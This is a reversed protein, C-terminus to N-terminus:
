QSLEQVDLKNIKEGNFQSIYKHVVGISVNKGNDWTIEKSIQRITKGERWLSIIKNKAQTSINKRGWKNGKYSLTPEGDKKRVALRVRQSKKDSEDEAIWGLIQLFNNIHMEAIWEFGEPLNLNQLSVLFKQRFSFIKCNFTKCFEFFALLRKRNRFLRDLDWVYLENIKKSQIEKRLKEFEPREKDDKWASQKDQFLVYNKGGITEIDRIQNEPEQEETSTRIYIAKM